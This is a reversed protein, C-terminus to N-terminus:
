VPNGRIDEEHVKNLAALRKAVDNLGAMQKVADIVPPPSCKSFDEHLEQAREM